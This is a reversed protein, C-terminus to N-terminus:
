LVESQLFLAFSVAAKPNGRAAVRALVRRHASTRQWVMCGASWGGVVSALAQSYADHGNIGFYGTQTPVGAGTDHKRDRNRDRYVTIRGRQVLAPHIGKHLGPMWLNAYYGPVVIATGAANLPHLLPALGPDTTGTSADVTWCAGDLWLLGLVDDFHDVRGPEARVGFAVVDGAAPLPYGKRVFAAHIREATCAEPTLPTSM